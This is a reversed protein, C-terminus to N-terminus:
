IALFLLESPTGASKVNLASRFHVGADDVLHIQYHPTDDAGERVGAVAKATLVGYSKLPM